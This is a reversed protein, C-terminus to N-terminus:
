KMKPTLLKWQERNEAFRFLSHVYKTTNYKKGNGYAGALSYKGVNERFIVWINTFIGYM